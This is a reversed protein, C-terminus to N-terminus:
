ASIKSEHENLFVYINDMTRQWEKECLTVFRSM